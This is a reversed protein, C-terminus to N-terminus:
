SSVEKGAQQPANEKKNQTHDIPASQGSPTDHSEPKTDKPKPEHKPMVLYGKLATMGLSVVQWVRIHFDIHVKFTPQETLYDVRVSITGERKDPYRIQLHRDLLEKLYAVGQCVYGFTVATKAADGSAVVVDIHHVDIRLRKGFRTIVRLIVYKVLDIGFAVNEKLSRKPPEQGAAKVAKKKEEKKRAAAAKALERKRFRKEERLRRKRFTKIRYDKLRPRSKRKPHLRIRFCLVRLTLTLEDEAKLILTLNLCALLTFFAAIGLLIYLVTV